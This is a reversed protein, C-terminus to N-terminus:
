PQYWLVEWAEDSSDQPWRLCVKKGSLGPHPAPFPIPSIQVKKWSSAPKCGLHVGSLFLCGWSQLIYSRFLFLFFLVSIWGFDGLIDTTPTPKLRGWERGLLRAKISCLFLKYRQIRLSGERMLSARLIKTQKNILLSFIHDSKFHVQWGVDRVITSELRRPYHSGHCGFRFGGCWTEEKTFQHSSSM